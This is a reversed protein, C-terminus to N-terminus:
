AHRACFHATDFDPEPCLLSAVSLWGDVVVLARLAGEAVPFAEVDQAVAALGADRLAAVLETRFTGGAMVPCDCIEVTAFRAVLRPPGVIFCVDRLDIGQRMGDAVSRALDASAAAVIARVRADFTGFTSMAARALIARVM